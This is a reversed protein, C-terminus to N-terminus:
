YFKQSNIYIKIFLHACNQALLKLLDPQIPEPFYFADKRLIYVSKKNFHIYETLKIQHHRAAKKATVSSQDKQHM